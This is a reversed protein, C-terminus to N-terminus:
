DNFYFGNPILGVTFEKQLTGSTSYIFAKGDSQYDKADTIYIKNDEVTLGYLTTATSTFLPTASVSTSNLATSFVNSNVSFYIKGDEINLNQANVLTAPFAVEGVIADTSVNIKVIKSADNYNSCLVYLIGNEEEFSVPSIGTNITKVIASTAPNIVTVSNGNGYTGNTIYLKGNEESIREAVANVAITSEVEYTSLNIVAVYDDTLSGFTAQNTVYAKGNVVVGYRPAALGTEVKDILKFTYRNVVTIKNSGSIIFAKEDKFFISQVYGGIGDGGNEAGYVNQQITTLDNGIFTISGASPSGENLVLMGNDYAGLPADSDGDSDDCSVFLVSGFLTVLFLKSFKMM